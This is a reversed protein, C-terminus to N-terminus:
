TLRAYACSAISVAPLISDAARGPRSNSRQTMKAVKDVSINNHNQAYRKVEKLDKFTVERPDM